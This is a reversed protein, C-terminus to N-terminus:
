AHLINEPYFDTYLLYILEEIQEDTLYMPTFHTFGKQQCYLQVVSKKDVYKMQWTQFHFDQIQYLFCFRYNQEDHNLIHQYILEIDQKDGEFCHLFHQNAYLSVGHINKESFFQKSRHMMNRFQAVFHLDKLNLCSIYCLQALEM